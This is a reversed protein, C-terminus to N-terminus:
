WTQTVATYVVSTCDTYACLHMCTVTILAHIGIILINNRDHHAAASPRSDAVAMQVAVMRFRYRRDCLQGRSPSTRIFCMSFYWFFVSRVGFVPNPAFARKEDFAIEM